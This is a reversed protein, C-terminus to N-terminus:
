AFDVSIRAIIQNLGKGLATFGRRDVGVSRVGEGMAEVARRIGGWGERMGLITHVVEVISSRASSQAGRNVDM